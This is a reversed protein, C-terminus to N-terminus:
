GARSLGFVLLVGDAAAGARGVVRERRVALM